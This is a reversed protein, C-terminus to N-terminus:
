CKGCEIFNLRQTDIYTLLAFNTKNLLVELEKREPMMDNSVPGKVTSHFENLSKTDSLHFIYLKGSKKLAKRFLNLALEKNDIHPFVAFCLISDYRDKGIDANEIPHVIYEINTYQPYLSKARAIMSAAPDLAYIKGNPGILEEILPFLVGNGCGVDLVKDGKAIKIKKFVERLQELRESNNGVVEDWRGGLGNFYNIKAEVDTSIM